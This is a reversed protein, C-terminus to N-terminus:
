LILSIIFVGYLGLISLLIGIICYIKKEKKVLGIIALIIGIIASMGASIISVIGFVISSIGFYNGSKVAQYVKDVDQSLSTKNKVM